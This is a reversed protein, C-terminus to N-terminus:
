VPTITVPWLQGHFCHNGVKIQFRLTGVKALLYEGCQVPDTAIGREDEAPFNRLELLLKGGVTLRFVAHCEVAASARQVEPQRSRAHAKAM